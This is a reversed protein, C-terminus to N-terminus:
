EVTVVCDAPRWPFPPRLSVRVAGPTGFSLVLGGGDVEGAAAGDILVATGEPVDPVPWDADAALTHAEPLGTAPRLVVAGGDVWHTDDRGHAAFATQGDRAQMAVHDPPCTGSRLIRGTADHVIFATM